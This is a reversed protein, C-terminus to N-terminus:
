PQPARFRTARTLSAQLSTVVMAPNPSSTSSRTASYRRELPLYGSTIGKASTIIDAEIGFVAESGFWHGLRGFGTVVEDSVYLIDNAKCYKSITRLYNAPPPVV